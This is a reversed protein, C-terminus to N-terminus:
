EEDDHIVLRRRKKTMMDTSKNIETIENWLACQLFPDDDNKSNGWNIDVDDDSTDQDKSEMRVSNDNTSLSSALGNNAKVSYKQFKSTYMTANTKTSPILLKGQENSNDERILEVRTRRDSAMFEGMQGNDDQKAARKAMVVIDKNLQCLKLFISIQVISFQIPDNAAPLFEHHSLLRQQRKISEIANKRDIAPLSSVYDVSLTSPDHKKKRCGASRSNLGSTSAPEIFDEYEVDSGNSDDGDCTGGRIGEDVDLEKAEEMAAVALPLDWDNTDEVTSKATLSKNLPKCARDDMDSSNQQQQQYVSYCVEVDYQKPSM